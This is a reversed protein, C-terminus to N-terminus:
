FYLIDFWHVIDHVYYKHIQTQVGFDIWGFIREVYIKHQFIDLYIYAGLKEGWIEM